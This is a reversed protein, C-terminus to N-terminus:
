SVLSHRWPSLNSVGLAVALCQSETIHTAALQIVNLQQCEAITTDTADKHFPVLAPISPLLRHSYDPVRVM